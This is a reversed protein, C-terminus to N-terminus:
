FNEKQKLKLHTKTKREKIKNLLNSIFVLDILVQKQIHIAGEFNM